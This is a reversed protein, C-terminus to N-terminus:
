KSGTTTAATSAPIILKFAGNDPVVEVRIQGSLEAEPTTARKLSGADLMRPEPPRANALTKIALAGTAAFVCLAVAAAQKAARARTRAVLVGAFALSLSLFIGALITQTPRLSGTLTAAAADGSVSDREMEARLQRLVNQPIQLRAETADSRSEISMRAAPLSATRRVKQPTRTPAPEPAAIDAFAAPAFAFLALSLCCLRLKM